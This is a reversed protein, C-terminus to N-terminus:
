IFETVHKIVCQYESRFKEQDGKMIKFSQRINRVKRLPLSCGTHDAFINEYNTKKIQLDALIM